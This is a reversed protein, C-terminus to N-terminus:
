GLSRIAFDIVNKDIAMMITCDSQGIEYNKSNTSGLVLMESIWLIQSKPVPDVGIYLNGFRLRFYTTNARRAV